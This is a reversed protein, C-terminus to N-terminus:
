APSQPRRRRAAFFGAAILVSLGGFGTGLMAVPPNPAQRLAATGVAATAPVDGFGSLRIQSPVLHATTGFAAAGGSAPLPPALLRLRGADLVADLIRRAGVYEHALRPESLRDIRVFAGTYPADIIYGDRIYIGVHGPAKRTGDSGTFFVLDGPQLRNPAVPVTDPSSWQAAAFHPLSVGLQAFVYKVLGSCDFGTRPSAGGWKYPVGLYRIAIAIARDHRAAPALAGGVLFPYRTAPFHPATRRAKHRSHKGAAKQRSGKASGTSSARHGHQASAAPHSKTQPPAPAVRSAASFALAITTGAPLSDQAQVLRLVLPATLRGLTEGVTLEGWSGVPLTQGPTASVAAGDIELGSVVGRGDTAEINTATVAGAFLSVADLTVTADRCTSGSVTASGFEAVAGSVPYGSAGLDTAPTGLAVVGHSPPAVAVAGAGVCGAPLVSPELPAFSSSTTTSTTTTPTSTTTGAALAGRASALGLVAALVGFVLLAVGRRM